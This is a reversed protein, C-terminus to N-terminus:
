RVNRRYHRELMDILIDDRDKWMAGIINEACIELVDDLDLTDLYREFGDDSDYPSALKWNDYGPLNESM